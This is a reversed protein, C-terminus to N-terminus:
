VEKKSVKDLAVKKMKMKYMEKDAENITNKLEKTSMATSYGTSVALKVRRTSKNVLKIKKYIRNIIKEVVVKDAKPVLVSFEDGGVRALIDYKRVCEKLINGVSVILKDGAQHGYKDNTKKLNDLDASIISIPFERSNKLRKLEAEFFNRNYLGTMSDYIALYKLDENYFIDQIVVICGNKMKELPKIILENYSNKSTTLTLGKKLTKIDERSIELKSLTSPVGKKFFKRAQPNSYTLKGSKDYFTIGIPLTDLIQLNETNKV